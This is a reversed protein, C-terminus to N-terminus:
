NLKGDVAMQMYTADFRLKVNDKNGYTKDGPFSIGVTGADKAGEGLLGHAFSFTAVKEMTATLAPSSTFESAEKPSAFLKTAALQADFGALDTSSAQAM